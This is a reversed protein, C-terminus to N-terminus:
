SYSNTFCFLSLVTGPGLNWAMSLTSCLCQAANEECGVAKRGKREVTDWCATSDACPYEMKLLGVEGKLSKGSRMNWRSAEVLAQCTPLSSLRM